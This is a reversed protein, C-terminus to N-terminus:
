MTNGNAIRYFREVFPRANAFSREYFEPKHGCKAFERVSINLLHLIVKTLPGGMLVGVVLKLELHFIGHSTGVLKIGPINKTDELYNLVSRSVDAEITQPSYCCRHIIGRLMPPIGCRLMWQGGIIKAIDHRFFDTAESYDTFSAYVAKFRHEKTFTGNPGDTKGGGPVRVQDFFTSRNGQTYFGKFAEWAHHAAGMGSRSSEVGKALPWSCIKNVTDLVVKLAARQKTVTRAKAPEEAVAISARSLEEPNM